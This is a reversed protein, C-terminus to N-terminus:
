LEITPESQCRGKSAGFLPCGFVPTPPESAPDRSAPAGSAPEKSAPLGSDIRGDSIAQIAATLQSSAANAGVHNRGATIGGEFVLRGLADYALCYGSTRANFLEAELGGHDFVAHMRPHESVQQVLESDLWDKRDTISDHEEPAWFVVTTSSDTAKVVDALMDLSARTCPCRPHAFMLIVPANAPREITTAAPWSAPSTTLEGATTSYSELVAFGAVVSVAWGCLLITRLFRTSFRPIVDLNRVTSEPSLSPVDLM